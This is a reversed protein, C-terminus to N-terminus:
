RFVRPPNGLGDLNITRENQHVPLEIERDSFSTAWHAEIIADEILNFFRFRLMLAALVVCKLPDEGLNHSCFLSLKAVEPGGFM